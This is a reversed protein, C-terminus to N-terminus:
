KYVRVYRSCDGCSRNKTGKTQHCCFRLIDNSVTWKLDKTKIYQQLNQANNLKLMELADKLPIEDHIRQLSEAIEDRVTQELKSMLVTYTKDPQHDRSKWIEGYSGEMMFQEILM